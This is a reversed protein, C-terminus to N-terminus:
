SESNDIQDPNPVTLDKISAFFIFWILRVRAFFGQKTKLMAYKARGCPTKILSDVKFEFM